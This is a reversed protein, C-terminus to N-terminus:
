GLSFNLKFNYSAIAPAVDSSLGAVSASGSWHAGDPSSCVYVKGDDRGVFAILLVGGCNTMCPATRSQHGTATAGSWNIGDASSCVL